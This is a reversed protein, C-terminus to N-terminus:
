WLDAQDALAGAIRGILATADPCLVLKGADGAGDAPHHSWLLLESTGASERAARGGARCDNGRKRANQLSAARRIFVAAATRRETVLVVARRDDASPDGAAACARIVATCLGSFQKRRSLTRSLYRGPRQTQRRLSQDGGVR